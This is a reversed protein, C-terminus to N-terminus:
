RENGNQRHGLIIKDRAVLRLESASSQLSVKHDCLSLVVPEDGQSFCRLPRDGLQRVTRCRRSRGSASGAGSRETARGPKCPSISPSLASRWPTCSPLDIRWRDRHRCDPRGRCVGRSRASGRGLVAISGGASRSYFFADGSRAPIKPIKTEVSVSLALETVGLSDSITERYFPIAEDRRKEM